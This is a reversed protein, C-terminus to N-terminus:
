NIYFHNSISIFIIRVLYLGYWDTGVAKVGLWALTQDSLNDFLNQITYTINPNDAVGLILWMTHCATNAAELNLCCRRVHCLIPCSDSVSIFIIKLIANSCVSPESWKLHFHYIVNEPNQKLTLCILM